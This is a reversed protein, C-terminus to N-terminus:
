EGKYGEDTILQYEEEAIWKGVAEYVQEKTWTGDEYYSKVKYFNKSM